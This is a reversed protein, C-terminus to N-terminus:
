RYSVNELSGQIVTFSLIQYCDVKQGNSEAPIWDSPMTNVVELVQNSLEKLNGKGKTVIQFNGANGECNVKFGISVRFVSNRARKDTLPNQAFYRKLTDIGGKYQPNKDPKKFDGVAGKLLFDGVSFIHESDCDTTKTILSADITKVPKIKDATVFTFGVPCELEEYDYGNIYLKVPQGGEYWVQYVDLFGQGFAASKSKFACCSGMRRYMVNEGNPGRLANLFHSEKEISGTKIPKRKTYGYKKHTSIATLKIIDERIYEQSYGSVVFILVLGLISIRKRM